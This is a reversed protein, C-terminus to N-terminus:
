PESAGGQYRQPARVTRRRPDPRGRRNAQKRLAIGRPRNLCMPPDNERPTVEGCSRVRSCACGSADVKNGVRLIAACNARDCETDACPASCTTTQEQAGATTCSCRIRPGMCMTALEPPRQQEEIVDNLFAAVDVSCVKFVRQNFEANTMSELAVREGETVTMPNLTPPLCAAIRGEFTRTPTIGSFGADCRCDCTLDTAARSSAPCLAENEECASPKVDGVDCGSIAWAACVLSGAALGLVTRGNGRRRTRPRKARGSHLISLPPGRRRRTERM